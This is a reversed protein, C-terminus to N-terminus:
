GAKKDWYSKLTQLYPRAGLGMASSARIQLTWTKAFRRLMLFVDKYQGRGQTSYAIKLADCVIALPL